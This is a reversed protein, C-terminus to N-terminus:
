TGVVQYFFNGGAFNRIGGVDRRSNQFGQKMKLTCFYMQLMYLETKALCFVLPQFYTRVTVRCAESLYVRSMFDDVSAFSSKFPAM